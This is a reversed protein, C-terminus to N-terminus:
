PINEVAFCRLVKRHRSADVLVDDVVVVVLWRAVVVAAAAGVIALFFSSITVKSKLLTPQLLV